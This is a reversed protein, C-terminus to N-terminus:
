ATQRPLSLPQLLQWPEVDLCRALKEVWDVTAAKRRALVDYLQSRSAGAFDALANLTVGQKDAYHRLNSALVERVM